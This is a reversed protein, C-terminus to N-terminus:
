WQSFILVYWPPRQTLPEAGAAVVVAVALSEPAAFGRQWSDEGGGQAL